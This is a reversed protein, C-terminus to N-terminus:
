CRDVGLARDDARSAGYRGRRGNSRIRWLDRVMRWPDRIISVHSRDHYHWEIPVERIRWGQRRAIFLVELDFTWGEMTTLPLM